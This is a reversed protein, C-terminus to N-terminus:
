TWPWSPRPRSSWRTRSVHVSAASRITPGRSRCISSSTSPCRSPRRRSASASASRATPSRGRGGTYRGNVAPSHPGQKLFGTDDIIWATVPERASLAKVVYQAAERRVERDRWPSERLFHLLRDQIQEAAEEDGGSARAAIPEVSKRDGEGLIGFAYTAFSERHQPLPLHQGIRDFYGAVRAAAGLDMRYEHAKM